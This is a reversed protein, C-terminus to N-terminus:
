CKHAPFFISLETSHSFRKIVEPSPAQVMKGVRSIMITDIFFGKMLPKIKQSIFHDTKFEQMHEGFTSAMSPM